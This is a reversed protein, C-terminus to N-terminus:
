VEESLALLVTLVCAEESQQFHAAGHYKDAVARINSLGLGRGKIQLATAEYSNIIDIMFFGKNRRAKIDIY